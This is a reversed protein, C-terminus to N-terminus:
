KQIIFKITENRLGNTLTMFYFGNNYNTIDFPISYSSVKLKNNIINDIKRGENDYINITTIEDSLVDFTLNNNLSTLVNGNDFRIFASTTFDLNRVGNLNCQGIM